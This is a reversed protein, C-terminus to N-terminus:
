SGLNLTWTQIKLVNYSLTFFSLFTQVLDEFIDLDKNNLLKLTICSFNIKPYFINILSATLHWLIIVVNILHKGLHNFFLPLCLGQESTDSSAHRREQNDICTFSQHLIGLAPSLISMILTPSRFGLKRGTVLLKVESLLPVSVLRMGIKFRDSKTVTIGHTAFKVM